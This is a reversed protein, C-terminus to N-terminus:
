WELAHIGKRYDKMETLADVKLKGLQRVQENLEEVVSRHLLLADSYNTAIPAQPIEVQGQKLDLLIEVNYINNFKYDFFTSIKALIHETKLRIQESEELVYQILMQMEKFNKSAYHLELESMIKRERIEVLRNWIEIGLGDPLETSQNLPVPALDLTEKEYQAYPDFQEEKNSGETVQPNVSRRKFLKTLAEFYFEHIHFEKKFQKEIDRDRKSAIDFEERSKEL